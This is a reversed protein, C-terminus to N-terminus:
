LCILSFIIPGSSPTLNFPHTPFFVHQHLNLNQSVVDILCRMQLLRSEFTWSWLDPYSFPSGSVTNASPCINLHESSSLPPIVLLFFGQLLGCFAPPPILWAEWSCLLIPWALRNLLSLAFIVFFFPFGFWCVLVV